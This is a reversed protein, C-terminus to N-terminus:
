GSSPSLPQEPVSVLSWDPEGEDWTLGQKTEVLFRAFRVLEQSSGGFCEMVLKLASQQEPTIACYEKLSM